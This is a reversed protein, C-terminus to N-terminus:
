FITLDSILCVTKNECTADKLFVMFNKCVAALMNSADLIRLVPLKSEKKTFM